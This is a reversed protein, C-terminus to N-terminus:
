RRQRFQHMTRRPQTSPPTAPTYFIEVYMQTCNIRGGALKDIQIKLNGGFLDGLGSESTGWTAWTGAASGTSNTASTHSRTGGGYIDYSFRITFNSANTTHPALRAYVAVGTITDTPGLVGTTYVDFAQSTNNTNTSHIYSSLGDDTYVALPKTGGDGLVWNNPLANASPYLTVSAM